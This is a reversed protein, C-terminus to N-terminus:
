RGAGAAFVNEDPNFLKGNLCLPCIDVTGGRVRDEHPMEQEEILVVPIFGFLFIVRFKLGYFEM